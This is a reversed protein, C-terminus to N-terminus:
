YISLVHICATTTNKQVTYSVTATNKALTEARATRIVFTVFIYYGSLKSCRM